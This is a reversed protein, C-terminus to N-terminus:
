IGRIWSSAHRWLLDPLRAAEDIGAVLEGREWYPREYVTMSQLKQQWLEERKGM